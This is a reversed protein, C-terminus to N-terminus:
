HPRRSNAMRPSRPGPPTAQCGMSDADARRLKKALEATQRSSVFEYEVFRDFNGSFILREPSRICCSDYMYGPLDDGLGVDFWIGRTMFTFVTADTQDPNHRPFLISEQSYIDCAASVKVTAERPFPDFGVLYRRLKEGIAGLDLGGTARNGFTRWVHAGRWIVSLAFFALQDTDVDVHAASYVRNEGVARWTPNARVLELMKFGDPRNVMGTVYDEGMRSFRQECERCLMYDKIQKQDQIILKPSILIPRDGDTSSLRYFAKGLYHSRQLDALDLCLKCKGRKM